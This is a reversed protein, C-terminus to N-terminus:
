PEQSRSTWSSPMRHPPIRSCATETAFMAEWRSHGAACLTFIMVSLRNQRQHRSRTRQVRDMISINFESVMDQSNNTERFEEGQVRVEGDRIKRMLSLFQSNQFKDSTDHQVSNLLQGATRALDDAEREQDRVQDEQDRYKIADSGIRYQVPSPTKSLSQFGYDVDTHDMYELDSQGIRMADKNLLDSGQQEVSEEISHGPALEERTMDEAHRSAQAFADDFGAEDYMIEGGNEQQYQPQSLPQQYIGASTVPAYSGNLNQPYSYNLNTYQSAVSPVYAQKGQAITSRGSPQQRVFEHQWGNSRVLPAEARFQQSRLPQQSIQLNQFDAAWGPAVGHQRPVNALHTPFNGSYLPQEFTAPGAEFAAFEADQSGARPDQTRFGQQITLQAQFNPSSRSPRGSSAFATPRHPSRTSADPRGALATQLKALRQKPWM